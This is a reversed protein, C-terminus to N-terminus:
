SAGGAIASNLEHLVPDLKCRWCDDMSSTNMGSACQHAPATRRVIDFVESLLRSTIPAPRSREDIALKALATVLCAALPDVCDTVFEMKQDFVKLTIVSMADRSAVELTGTLESM